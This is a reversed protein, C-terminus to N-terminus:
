IDVEQKLLAPLADLAADFAECTYTIERQGHSFSPLLSGNSLIHRSILLRLFRSRITTESLGNRAPFHFTLRPAPGILAAPIGKQLALRNFTDQLEGGRRWLVETVSEEELVELTALAAAISATEFEYTLSYFCDRLQSMLARKGCLASLPYGNAISKGFCALDPTVGFLEQAGGLALRFGTVIEDFILVAGERATLAKVKQLFDYSPILVTCPELLVAAIEGPYMEFLRELSSLNNFEFPSLLDSLSVPIGRVDKISAAFWDHFGHFGCYAVRQRGTVARALRIAAECVDSGNKGFRVQEACPILRNLLEALELVQVDMLTTLPGREMASRVAETVAPYNYGLIVPGYAMIYDLFREGEIDTM